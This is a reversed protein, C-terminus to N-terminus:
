TVVSAVLWPLPAVTVFWPLDWPGRIVWVWGCFGVGALTVMQLVHVTSNGTFVLGFPLLMVILFAEVGVVIPFRRVTSSPLREKSNAAPSVFTGTVPPM